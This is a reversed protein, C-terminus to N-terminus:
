NFIHAIRSIRCKYGKYTPIRRSEGKRDLTLGASTYPMTEGPIHWRAYETLDATSVDFTSGARALLGGDSAPHVRSNHRPSGARSQPGGALSLTSAGLLGSNVSLLSNDSDQTIVVAPPRQRQQMGGGGSISFINADEDGMHVSLYFINVYIM